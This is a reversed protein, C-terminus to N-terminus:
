ENYTGENERTIQHLDERKKEEIGIDIEKLRKIQSELKTKQARLINRRSRLKRIKKMKKQVTNELLDIKKNLEDINKNNDVLNEIFAIWIAAEEKKISEPYKKIISKFCKLSKYYDANPNEPHLYVLGMQYLARDGLARPSLSAVEENEMLSAKYEGKAMLTRAMALHKEGQWQNPSHVCATIGSLITICCTLYLFFHKGTWTRERGM